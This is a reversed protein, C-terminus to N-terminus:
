RHQYKTPMSQGRHKGSAQYHYWCLIDSNHERSYGRDRPYRRGRSNSRNRRYTNTQAQAQSLSTLQIKIEALEATLKDIASERANSAESIQASPAIAESITDALEAVADLSAKAQTALIPQTSSPLRGLWLSIVINDPVTTGTLSQLHRLFQFPRRDGLEEHELLRKIKQQQSASLRKILESKLKVYRETAQPSVIIDRVESIYPTELNAVIYNFKTADSTINVLTFQNEIQLFGIEPDNPWFPPIKITQPDFIACATGKTSKSADTYIQYANSSLEKIDAKFM